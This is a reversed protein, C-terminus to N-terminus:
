LIEGVSSAFIAAGTIALLSLHALHHSSLRFVGRRKLVIFDILLLMAVMAVLALSVTKTLAFPDVLVQTKASSGAIAKLPPQAVPSPELVVKKTETQVPPAAVPAGIAAGFMQVVLVTQQGKLTGEVVAIGIERYKSGLLNNRHSPSNMWARVVDESNYFNRALNEGAYSFSYGASKIFGWPDKGSPSFHAWYDEEFMNAAKRRAADDLKPNVALPALGAKVREKNTESIISEVTISSSIGLVGPKYLSTVDIGIRLFIFFLIYILIFNFSLLHAKKHTHPHPIFFALFKDMILEKGRVVLLSSIVVNM